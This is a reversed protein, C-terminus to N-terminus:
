ILTLDECSSYSLGPAHFNWNTYSFVGNGSPPLIEYDGLDHGEKISNTYVYPGTTKFVTLRRPVDLYSIGKNMSCVERSFFPIDPSFNELKLLVNDLVRQLPASKPRAIIWWQQFEGSRDTFPFSHLRGISISPWHSALLEVNGKTPMISDLNGVASSKIDLYVGGKEHLIAYRFIDAKVAGFEPNINNYAKLVRDGWRSHDAYYTELFEEIDQDDYLIQEYTPNAQQTVKWSSRYKEPLSKTHYTRYINKPVAEDSISYLSNFMKRSLLHAELKLDEPSNSVEEVNWKWRVPLWHHHHWPGQPNSVKTLADAKVLFIPTDPNQKAINATGTRKGVDPKLFMFVNDGKRLKETAKTVTGDGTEIIQADSLKPILSGVIPISLMKKSVIFHNDSAGTKKTIEPLMSNLIQAEWFPSIDHQVMFFANRSPWDFTSDATFSHFKETKKLIFFVVITVVVVILVTLAICGNITKM